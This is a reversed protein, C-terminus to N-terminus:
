GSKMRGAASAEPGYLNDFTYLADNSGRREILIPFRPQVIVVNGGYGYPYGGYYPNVPAAPYYGRRYSQAETQSFFGLGFLFVAMFFLIKGFRM